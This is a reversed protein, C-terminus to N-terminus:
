FDWGWNTDGAELLEEFTEEPIPKLGLTDECCEDFYECVSHSPISLLYDLLDSASMPHNM